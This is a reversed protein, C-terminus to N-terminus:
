PLDDLQILGRKLAYITLQTRDRIALKGLINAVHTRVTGESITFQEAIQLNTFGRAMVDFIERERETLRDMEDHKIVSRVLIDSTGQDLALEGGIVKEISQILEAPRSAKLIYGHAGALLAKKVLHEEVSSTLVLIRPNFGLALIQRIGELGGMGPMILDMLILMPQRSKALIVASEADKAEGVIQIGPHAELLLRLGQRVIAHDDVILTTTPSM